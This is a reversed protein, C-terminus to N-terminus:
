TTPSTSGTRGLRRKLFLPELAFLAFCPMAVFPGFFAAITTVVFVGAAYAVELTIRRTDVSTKAPDYLGRRPDLAYSFLRWTLFACAFNNFSYVILPLNTPSWWFTSYNKAIFSTSFPLFIVAALTMLNRTILGNDYNDLIGFLQHNRRWHMSILAFSIVVGVFEPILHLFEAVAHETAAEYVPAKIEIILLTIAIAIVADSFFAIREIQFATKDSM